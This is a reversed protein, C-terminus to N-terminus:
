LYPDRIVILNTAPRFLTSRRGSNVTKAPPSPRLLVTPQLLSTRNRAAWIVIGAIKNAAINTLPQPWPAELESLEPEEAGDIEEIATVVGEVDRVAPCFSCSDAFAVYLSPEVFSTVALTEHDEEFVPTTETEVAPTAV